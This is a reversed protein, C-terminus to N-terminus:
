AKKSEKKLKAYYQLKGDLDKLAARRKDVLHVEAALPPSKQRRLGSIEQPPLDGALHVGVRKFWDKHGAKATQESWWRVESEEIIVTYPEPINLFRERRQTRYLAILKEM